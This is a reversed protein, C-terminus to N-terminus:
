LIGCKALAILIWFTIFCTLFVARSFEIQDPRKGQAM